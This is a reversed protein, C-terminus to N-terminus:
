QTVPHIQWLVRLRQITVYNNQHVLESNSNSAESYLKTIHLSMM